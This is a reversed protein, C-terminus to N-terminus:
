EEEEAYTKRRLEEAEMFMKQERKDYCEESAKELKGLATIVEKLSGAENRVHKRKVGAQVHPDISAVLSTQFLGAIHCVCMSVAAAIEVFVRVVPVAPGMMEEITEMATAVMRM